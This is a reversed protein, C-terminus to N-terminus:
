YPNEHQQLQQQRWTGAATVSMTKEQKLFGALLSRERRRIILSDDLLERLLQILQLLAFPMSLLISTAVSRAPERISTLSRSDAEM